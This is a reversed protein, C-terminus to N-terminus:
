NLSIKFAEITVICHVLIMRCLIKMKFGRCIATYTEFFCIGNTPNFFFSHFFNCVCVACLGNHSISVKQTYTFITFYCLLSPFLNLTISFRFFLSFFVIYSFSKSPMSLMNVSFQLESSKNIRENTRQTHNIKRKDLVFVILFAFVNKRDTKRLQTKQKQKTQFQFSNFDIRWQFIGLLVLLNISNEM